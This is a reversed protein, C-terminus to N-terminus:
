FCVYVPSRVVMVSQQQFRTKYIAAVEDILRRVRPSEDYVIEIVRSAERQVPEGGKRWQGTAHLVTLGDPFRPTVVELLFAEWEPEPIPGLPGQLGFYLQAHTRHACAPAAQVQSPIHSAPSLLTAAVALGVVSSGLTVSLM